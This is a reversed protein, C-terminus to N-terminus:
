FGNKMMHQVIDKIREAYLEEKNFKYNLAEFPDKGEEVAKGLDPADESDTLMIRVIMLAIFLGMRTYRAWHTKLQEFSFVEEADIDLSRLHDTFSDYYIRMNRDLQDFYSKPTCSYYYYNLDMAPSGTRTAQFDLFAM